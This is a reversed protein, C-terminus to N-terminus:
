LEVEMEDYFLAAKRFKFIEAARLQLTADNILYKTNCLGQM